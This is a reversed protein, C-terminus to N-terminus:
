KRTLSFLRITYKLKKPKKVITKTKDNEVKKSIYYNHDGKAAISPQHTICIVQHNKAITKLGNTEM